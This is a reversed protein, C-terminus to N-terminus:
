KQGDKRGIKKGHNNRVGAHYGNIAATTLADEIAQNFLTGINRQEIYEIHRKIAQDANEYDGASRERQNAAVGLDNDAREYIEMQEQFEKKSKRRFFACAELGLVLAIEYVTLGITMSDLEGSASMRILLFGIAVLIGATLGLWNFTAIKRGFEVLILLALIAGIPISVAASAIWSLLADTQALGIFFVDHFTPAFGIAFVAVAVAFTFWLMTDSGEAPKHTQALSEEKHRLNIEANHSADEADQRIAHLREFEEQYHKDHLNATTDFLGQESERAVKRWKELLTSETEPNPRFDNSKEALEYGDQYASSRSYVETPTLRDYGVSDTEIAKATRKSVLENKTDALKGNHTGNSTTILSNM